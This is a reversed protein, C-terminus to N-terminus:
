GRPEMQLKFYDRNVADCISISNVVFSSGSRGFYLKQSVASRTAPPTVLFSVVRRSFGSDSSGSRFRSCRPVRTATVFLAGSAPISRIDRPSGTYSLARTAPWTAYAAVPTSLNESFCSFPVSRHRSFSLFSSPKSVLPRRSSTCSSSSSYSAASTPPFRSSHYPSVGAIEHNSKLRCKTCGHVAGVLENRYHCTHM